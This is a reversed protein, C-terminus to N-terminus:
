RTYLGLKFGIFIQSGTVKGIVHTEDESIAVPVVRGVAINHSHALFGLNSTIKDEDLIM